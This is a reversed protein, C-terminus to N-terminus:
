QVHAPGKRTDTTALHHRHHKRQRHRRRRYQYGQEFGRKASSLTRNPSLQKSPDCLVGVLTWERTTKLQWSKNVRARYYLGDSDYLVEIVNPAPAPDPSNLTDGEDDEQQEEGVEDDSPADDLWNHVTEGDFFEEASEATKVQDKPQALDHAENPSPIYDNEHGGQKLTRDGFCRKNRSSSCAYIRRAHASM